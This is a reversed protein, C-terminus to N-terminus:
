QSYGSTTPYGFASNRLSTVLARSIQPADVDQKLLAVVFTRVENLLQDHQKTQEASQSM